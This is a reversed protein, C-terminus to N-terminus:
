PEKNSKDLVYGNDLGKKRAPIGETMWLPAPAGKLYHDFFQTMRITYDLADNYTVFHEGKDYQLMWVRRGLRRLAMFFEVGQTWPVAEDGKNHMILLPTTVKDANFIPSDDIYSNPNEWLSARERGQGMEHIYQRSAGFSIGGYSSILNCSGAGEAAAAFFHSHTVLYNTEWGGFSHGQIGIRSSDVWDNKSLYRAGSVVADLVSKGVAGTHYHIDPLFVLYGRSVFYPINIFDRTEEPEKFKYLDQSFTEYYHILMPYKNAANFNEPKYLIGQSLSGDPLPWTVLEATLWNYSKQPQIDTLASFSALNKTYFLNPAETASERLVVWADANKAKIPEHYIYPGINLLVPDHIGELTTRYFGSYKNATDFASLVLSEHLPLKRFGEVDEALRLRIHHARGYGNTVNVPKKIGSPDIKWVDFNDYILLTQEDLVWGAIGAPPTMSDTWKNELRGDKWSVGAGKTINRNEKTSIEYSFYNSECPDYYIVYKEGPSLTYDFSQNWNLPYSIGKKLLTKEGDRVSELFVSPRASTQWRFDTGAGRSVIVYDNCDRFNYGASLQENEEQLRIINKGKVKVVGDFVMPRMGFRLQEEQLLIDKYSWIDVKVADPPAKKLPKEVMQFFLMTGDKNFQPRNNHIILDEFNINSNDIWKEAMEMGEKYYWVAYGSKDEAIFAVQSGENDFVCNDVKVGVLITKKQKTRLNWWKVILNKVGNEATDTETLLLIGKGNSLYTKVFPESQENSGYLRRLTVKRNMGEGQWYALWEENWNHIFEAASAQGIYDKENRGLRLMILSDDTAAIVAWKSDSTFGILSGQLDRKWSSNMSQFVARYNGPGHPLTYFVFQGDPSISAGGVHEWKNWVSTDVIPKQAFLNATFVQLMLLLASYKM